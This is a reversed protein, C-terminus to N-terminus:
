RTSWGSASPAPRFPHVRRAISGAICGGGAYHPLVWFFVKSLQVVMKIGFIIAEGEAKIGEVTTYRSGAEEQENMRDFAASSAAPEGAVAVALHADELSPTLTSQWTSVCAPGLNFLHDLSVRARRLAHSTDVFGFIGGEYRVQCRYNAIELGLSKKM